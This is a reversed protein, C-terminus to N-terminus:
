HEMGHESTPNRDEFFSLKKEGVDSQEQEASESRDNEKGTANAQEQKLEGFFHLHKEGPEAAADARESGNGIAPANEPVRDEFFNLKKEGAGPSGVDPNDGAHERTREPTAEAEWAPDDSTRSPDGEPQRKPDQERERRPAGPEITQALSKEPSADPPLEAGQSKQTEPQQQRELASELAANVAPNAIDSYDRYDLLDPRVIGSRAFEEAINETAQKRTEDVDVILHQDIDLQREATREFLGGYQDLLQATLEEIRAERAEVAARQQEYTLPRKPDDVM